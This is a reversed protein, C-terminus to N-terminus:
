FTTYHRKSKSRCKKKTRSCKKNNKNKNKNKTRRCKKTKLRKQFGGTSNGLTKAGRVLASRINLLGTKKCNLRPQARHLYTNVRECDAGTSADQTGRCAFSLLYLDVNLHTDVYQLFNSFDSFVDSNISTIIEVYETTNMVGNLFLFIIHYLSQTNIQTIRIPNGTADDTQIIITNLLRERPKSEYLTAIYNNWGNIYLSITNWADSNYSALKSCDTFDFTSWDFTNFQETTISGRNDIVNYSACLGFAGSYEPSAEGFNSFNYREKVIIQPDIFNRSNAFVNKFQPLATPNKVFTATSIENYSESIYSGKLNAVITDIIIDYDTIGYDAIGYNTLLFSNPLFPPLSHYITNIAEHKNERSTEASGSASNIGYPVISYLNIKNIYPGKEFNSVYDEAVEIAVDPRYEIGAATSVFRSCINETCGHAFVNLIIKFKTTKKLEESLMQCESFAAATDM